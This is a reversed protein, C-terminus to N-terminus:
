AGTLIEELRAEQEKIRGDTAALEKEIAMATRKCEISQKRLEAKRAQLVAIEHECKAIKLDSEIQETTMTM